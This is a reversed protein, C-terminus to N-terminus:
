ASFAAFYRKLEQETKARTEALTEPTAGGTGQVSFFAPDKLGIMDLIVSLYPTLFDPQNPREGSFRGGSAIAVFV